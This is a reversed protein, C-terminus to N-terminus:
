WDNHQRGRLLSKCNTLFCMFRAKAFTRGADVELKFHHKKTPLPWPLEAEAHLWEVCQRAAKVNDSVEVQHATLGVGPPAHHMTRLCHGHGAFIQDGCMCCLDGGCDHQCLEMMVDDLHSLRFLEINSNRGSTPGHVAGQLGNPPCVTLTKQCAEMGHRCGDFWARQRACWNDRPAGSGINAPGSGPWCMEHVACDTFSFTNWDRPMEETMGLARVANGDLDKREKDRNM